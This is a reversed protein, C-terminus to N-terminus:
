ITLDHGRRRYQCSAAAIANRRATYDKEKESVNVCSSKVYGCVRRAARTSLPRFCTLPAGPTCPPPGPACPLGPPLPPPSLPLFAMLKAIQMCTCCHLMMTVNTEMMRCGSMQHSLHTKTISCEICNCIEAMTMQHQKYIFNCCSCIRKLM